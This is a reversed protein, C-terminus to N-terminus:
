LLGNHVLECVCLASEMKLLLMNHTNGTLRCAFALGLPCPLCSLILGCCPSPSCVKAAADPTPTAAPPVLSVGAFPNGGAAAATLSIGAFPNGAASAAPAEAATGGAGPPVTAATASVPATPAGGRRAKFIRRQKLTGKDARRFEGAIVQM